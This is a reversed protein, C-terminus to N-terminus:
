SLRVQAVVGKRTLMKGSPHKYQVTYLYLAPQHDRLLVGQDLWQHFLDAVDQYRSDGESGPGPNKTIDLRIMSYPNKATYSEVANESIVDYPPTVVDDLSGVKEVNFSVGRLPAIFAM